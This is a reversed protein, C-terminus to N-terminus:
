MLFFFTLLLDSLYIQCNAQTYYYYYDKGKKLRLALDLNSWMKNKYEMEPLRMVFEHIDTLNRSGHGKYSICLTTTDIKIDVISMYNSSRQMMLSIDDQQSNKDKSTGSGNRLRSSSRHRSMVSGTDTGPSKERSRSGASASLSSSGSGSGFVQRHHTGRLLKRHGSLLSVKGAKSSSISNQENNGSLSGIDGESSVANSDGENVGDDDGDDDDTSSDYEYVDENGAASSEKDFDVPATTSADDGSRKHFHSVYFPSEEGDASSPFIYEFIRKGTDRELQLKLPLLSMGFREMIPIGGIPDLMTWEVYILKQNRNGEKIDDHDNEIYPSFLEPYLTQPTLNFGQMMGVEVTNSNFGDRGEIRNFSADALGIDLFPKRDKSLVHWIIQDSAIAWKLLEAVDERQHNGKQMGERLARMMVMLELVSHQYEVEITTSDVNGQEDLEGRRVAFETRLELLQRIDEQLQNLRGVAKNLDSFDTALLVEELAESKKRHIPESYVLLDVVITYVAFYQKSDCTAVVKPFDVSIRNARYKEARVLNSCFKESNKSYRSNKRSPMKQVRLTNPKDYRLAVSTHEVVLAQKLPQSDYCMELALWPPWLGSKGCGYSNSNFLVVSGNKIDSQSLVFFQAEQLLVGYRTEVLGSVEDQEEDNDLVDVIKLEVNQSTVLVCQDPNQDSVLQIQPSTFRVLYTDNAERGESVKRLESEFNDMRIESSGSTPNNEPQVSGHRSNDNLFTGERFMQGILKEIEDKTCGNAENQDNSGESEESESDERQQQQEHSNRSNQKEILDEIYKVAKRTVFYSFARRDGVKHMYRYVANRVSNNWKLQVNHIIYRNSFANDEEHYATDDLSSMFSRASSSLGTGATDMPSLHSSSTTRESDRRDSGGNKEVVTMMTDRRSKLNQINERINTVRESVEPQDPYRKLDQLLSDLMADDTQLQEDLEDVRKKLLDIQTAEPHSKGILCDHAPENGFKIYKEGNNKTGIETNTHDTQRIYTWRPTYLLPLVVIKPVSRIPTSDDIEAYDDMDVWSYDNDSIKIKGSVNATNTHSSHSNDKSLVSSPTSKVGLKRAVLEQTSQEKFQALIVRLDTEKFDLEGSHIKMRWRKGYEQERRQHLDMTFNEVKAKLGTAEQKNNKSLDDSHPHMYSHAIFLPSLMLKYKVTFLHRGFKPKRFPKEQFLKGTRVPLSLSGDFLGWWHRFHYLTRPTLHATNYSDQHQSDGDENKFTSFVSIAMHMYQSRFGRFTDYNELNSIYEPKRLQVQYHPRFDSTREMSDDRDMEFLLGAMWRVKGSLKMLVKRFNTSENFDSRSLIAHSFAYSKKLYDREQAIYNPVALIYEESDAILLEKPDDTSNISLKVNNRWGMVFGAGVSLLDYPSRSGKLMLFVDGERWNIDIRAHIISRIKDWFGLKPSPDIPPKSFSDFALMVTQIAPQMSNAWTIRTPNKTNVDVNLDTYIKVSSITRIVEVIYSNMNPDGPNKVAMPVLPLRIRRISAEEPWLEEAIVFEGRIKVSPSPAQSSNMEPFHILPLPYDRLQTRWESLNLEVYMPVLLSFRTDLPLGKGIGHLFERLQTNNFSPSRILLDLNKFISLFLNPDESYEVIRENKATDEDIEDTGWLEEINKQVASKQCELAENFSKVWSRSINENLKQRAEEISVSYKDTPPKNQTMTYRIKSKKKGGHHLATQIPKVITPTKHPHKSGSAVRLPNVPELFSSVNKPPHFRSKQENEEDNSKASNLSDSSSNMGSGENSHDDQKSHSPSKSGKSGSGVRLSSASKRLKSSPVPSLSPDKQPSQQQQQQQREREEKEQASKIAEVKAEFAREKELRIKQERMGVQFILGLRSEFHDDELTMLLCPSKVRIKPLNPINSKEKPGKKGESEQEERMKEGGDFRTQLLIIAKVMTVLNDLIKHFIFQSPVNLRMADFNVLINEKDNKHKMEANAGKLAILRCWANPIYPHTSYMRIIKARCRPKYGSRLQVEFSNTEVMVQTESPLEMKIRINDTRVHVSMSDAPEPASTVTQVSNSKTQTKDLALIYFVLDVATRGLLHLTLNYKVIAHKMIVNCQVPTSFDLMDSAFAFNLSPIELFQTEETQDLGFPEIIQYGEIGKMSVVLKRVDEAVSGENTESSHKVSNLSHHPLNKQGWHKRYDVVSTSMKLTLGRIYDEDELQQESAVSVATDAIEIKVRSLWNPLQRLFPKSPPKKSVETTSKKNNKAHHDNKMHLLFERIGRFVERKTLLIHANSIIASISVSPSPNIVTTLRVFLNESLVVDYRTGSPARYWTDFSTVQFSANSNYSPNEADNSHSSEFDCNIKSSSSIVMSRSAGNEKMSENPSLLMRAAPQDITLKITARPWLKKFSQWSFKPTNSSSGTSTSQLLIPMHHAEVDVTPSTVNINSHIISQNTPTDNERVFQITKSFINTRSIMTTMPIYILEQFGSDEADIGLSVSSMSFIAQHASDCETFFLKFGPSEPNLKRLDLSLDKTSIAFYKSEEATLKDGTNYPIPINFAGIYSAKVEIEKVVRVLHTGISVLNKIDSDSLIRVGGEKDNEVDGKNKNETNKNSMQEAIDQRVQKLSSVIQALKDCHIVSKGSKFSLSIDKVSLDDTGLFGAVDLVIGDVLERPNEDDISDAIYFDNMTLKCFAPIEGSKLKHTDLTGVFNKKMPNNMINRLDIRFNFHGIILSGIGTYTIASSAASFDFYRSYNLIFRMIYFLLTRPPVLSWESDTENNDGGEEHLSPCYRSSEQSDSGDDDDNKREPTVQHDPDLVIKPDFTLDFNSIRVSVWSPRAVNPRHFSLGVKGISIQIGPKPSFSVHRLSLYGLRKVSVGTLLRIIAFLLFSLLYLIVLYGLSSLLFKQVAPLLGLPELM